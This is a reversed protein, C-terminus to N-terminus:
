KFQKFYSHYELYMERIARYARYGHKHYFREKNKESLLRWTRSGGIQTQTLTVGVQHGITIKKSTGSKLGNLHVRWAWDLDDCSWDFREDFIGIRKFIGMNYISVPGYFLPTVGKEGRTSEVARLFVSRDKTEVYGPSIIYYGEKEIADELWGEMFFLDDNLIGLFERKEKLCQFIVENIPKAGFRDGTFEHLRLDTFKSVSPYFERKFEALIDPYKSQVIIDIKKNFITTTNETM